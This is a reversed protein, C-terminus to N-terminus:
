KAECSSELMMMEKAWKVQARRELKLYWEIESRLNQSSGRVSVHQGGFAMWRGYKCPGVEWNTADVSHWPLALILTEGGVGFGHLKKPWVRAFCQEAFRAKIGGMMGVMGGIAVKPYEACLSKLVHWPEGVHYTPIAEINSKWMKETNKLSAKWDGIVDLAFIEIPSLRDNRDKLHICIQIYDTLSIVAGSNHASYAGSDLAWDRFSYHEIRSIFKKLYFYSVLIAPGIKIRDVGRRGSLVNDGQASPEHALRISPASMSRRGINAVALRINPLEKM